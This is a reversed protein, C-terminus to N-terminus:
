ASKRQPLVPEAFGRERDGVAHEGPDKGMPSAHEITANMKAGMLVALASVYLWTLAVIVGGIAGYTAQYNAFEVVYWRFGLSVALWLLTAFISGPTLWIWDQAVDPAVYYVIAVGFSVLAFIVPWQAIKWTWSFLPGLGAAHAIKDALPPGALVLAFSIIIFVALTVTLGIATARVHWWSRRDRVRYVQDLTSIASSMGSSASWIAGIIGLTLLGTHPRRAIQTLQTKVIDIVDSPAFGALANVVSSTLDHVPFYGALAVFFLLAPFLALFSFYALEAAWGLLNDEYLSVGVKKLIQLWGMPVHLGRLIGM